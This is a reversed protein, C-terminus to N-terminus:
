ARLKVKFSTLSPTIFMEKHGSLTKHVTTFDPTVTHPPRHPSSTEQAEFFLTLNQESVHKGIEEHEDSLLSDLIRKVITKQLEGDVSKVIVTVQIQYLQQALLSLQDLEPSSTLLHAFEERESFTCLTKEEGQLRYVKLM